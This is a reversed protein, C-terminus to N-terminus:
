TGLAVAFNRRLEEALSFAELPTSWDLCKRPTGNLSQVLRAIEADSVEALDTRRPLRKRMRGHTSEISGRQGPCGPDCFFAAVETWLTVNEHQAFEGGNDCTLTRRAPPPLPLLEAVIARACRDAEMGRLRRALTLRSARDELTLLAQAGKRFHMVDGEWHGIESRLGAEEPRAHIPVRNPIPLRRGRRRGRGRRRKRQRLLGPLCAKRGELSWVHRYISEVSTRHEAGGREMRGVIQEPSWEMALGTEVRTRLPTSRAIRSGRRKRAWARDDAGQPRYGGAIRGNRAIERYVTSRHRNLRRVIEEVGLGMELLGCLRCREDLTWHSYHQRM